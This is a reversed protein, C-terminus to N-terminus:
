KLIFRMQALSYVASFRFDAVECIKENTHKNYWNIGDTTYHQYLLEMNCVSSQISGKKLYRGANISHNGNHVYCLDIDTYYRSLHNDSHYVFNNKSINLLSVATRDTNWPCIYIISDELNINIKEDTQISHFQGSEDYYYIPIPESLPTCIPSILPKVIANACADILITNILYSLLATQENKSKGEIWTNATKMIQSYSDRIIQKQEAQKYKEYNRKFLM